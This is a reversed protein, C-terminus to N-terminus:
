KGPKFGNFYGRLSVYARSANGLRGYESSVPGSYSDFGVRLEIDSALPTMFEGLIRLGEDTASRSVIFELTSSNFIQATMRAALLTQIRRRFLYQAQVDYFSTSVQLSPNIREWAPLDVSAVGIEEDTTVYAVSNGSFVPLQRNTNHVAEIRAVYGEYDFAASLGTSQLRTHREHLRLETATSTGEESYFPFRDYYNLYFISADIRDHTYSVRGGAEPDANATEERDVKISTFTGIKKPLPVFDTGPLPIVHFHPKPIGLAEVSWDGFILKGFIMPTSRRSYTGDLAFGERMDRPNVIDAYMNGFTEGWVVQQNGARVLAPGSKYELYADEIRLEHSDLKRAQEPYINKQANYVNDFWAHIGGVATWDPHFQFTQKANLEGKEAAPGGPSQMHQAYKAQATASFSAKMRAEASWSLLSGLLLLVLRRLRPKEGNALDM